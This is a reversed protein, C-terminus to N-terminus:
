ENEFNIIKEIIRAWDDVSKVNGALTLPIHVDFEKQLAFYINIHGLSDWQPFDGIKSDPLLKM